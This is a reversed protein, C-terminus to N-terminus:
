KTILTKTVWSIRLLGVYKARQTWSLHHVRVFTVSADKNDMVVNIFSHVLRSLGMQFGLRSKFTSFLCLSGRILNPLQAAFRQFSQPVQLTLNKSM